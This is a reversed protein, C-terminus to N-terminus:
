AQVSSEPVRGVRRRAAAVTFTSTIVVALVIAIATFPWGVTAANVDDVFQRTAGVLDANGFYPYQAAELDARSHVDSVAAGSFPARVIVTDLDTGMLLEQAVDRMDPAHAPARELVVVGLSGFDTAEAHAVADLLGPELETSKGAPVFAGFAVSDEGLQRALDDLDVDAPIM